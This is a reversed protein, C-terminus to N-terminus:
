SRGLSADMWDARYRSSKPDPGRGGDMGPNWGSGAETTASDM